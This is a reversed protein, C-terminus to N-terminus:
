GHDSEEMTRSRIVTMDIYPRYGPTRRMALKILEDDISSNIRALAEACMRDIDRKVWGLRRNTREIIYDFGDKPPPAKFAALLVGQHESM